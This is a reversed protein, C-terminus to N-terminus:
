RAGHLELLTQLLVPMQTPGDLYFRARSRSTQPGIRVTVWQGPAKAFAAEDNDDDGIFLGADAQCRAALDLLADGKDPAGRPVVNVVCKGEGVELPADVERLVADIAQRARGPEPALRYHLALSFHKDEVTVGAHAVEAHRMALRARLPDLAEAWRRTTLAEADELGHSGVVFRPAFGLRVGVDAVARGTIVAVPLREALRSLRRAVPLPIRADGPRAVIPALTGDFDFALLARGRMMAALATRGDSGFLPKV